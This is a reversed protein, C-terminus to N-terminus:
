KFVVCTGEFRWGESPKAALLVGDCGHKAAEERLASMAGDDGMSSKARITGVEVYDEFPKDTSYFHVDVPRMSKPAHPPEAGPTWAASSCGIALAALASAAILIPGSRRGM